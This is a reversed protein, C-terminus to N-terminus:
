DVTFDQKSNMYDLDNWVVDIPVEHKDHMRIITELERVNKYGWRCQHYGMSWFPPILSPGIFNHYKKM